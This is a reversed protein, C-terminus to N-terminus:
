DNNSPKQEKLLNYEVTNKGQNEVIQMIPVGNHNVVILILDQDPRLLYTHNVMGEIEAWDEETFMGEDNMRLIDGKRIARHINIWTRVMVSFGHFMADSEVGEKNQSESLFM